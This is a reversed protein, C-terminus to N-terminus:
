GDEIHLLLVAGIMLIVLAPAWAALMVPLTGASGLAHVLDTFFYLLFGSLIGAVILLGVKGRRPLRLSFVAAVWVMGAMLFPSALLSNFYIRHRIASFGAEELTDIFGPLRWFSMTEPSAFSDQIHELTLSTPMAYDSLPQPPKGPISRVVQELKLYGPTLVVRKADIREVFEKKKDFGFLIVNAFSMDTQSIRSANIIYESIANGKGEEMQRMWLGSSSVMLLSSKGSFSRADIQEFRLLMASALPNFTTAMFVGLVLVVAMAPALFQWVSIGAARAVILEHTRTLRAFALMSGILVAYPLMRETLYPIKLGTLTLVVSFPVTDKGAARRLLEVIDILTTVAALGAAALLVSWLFHKAIYRSLTLPMRM